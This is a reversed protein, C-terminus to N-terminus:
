AARHLRALIARIEEAITPAGPPDPRGADEWAIHASVADALASRDDEVLGVRDNLRDLQAMLYTNEAQVQALRMGKEADSAELAVIRAALAEYPTRPDATARAEALTKRGLAYAGYLTGLSALIGVAWDIIAYGTM